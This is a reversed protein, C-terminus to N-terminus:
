EQALFPFYDNFYGTNQGGWPDLPTSFAYSKGVATVVPMENVTFYLVDTKNTTNVHNDQFKYNVTQFGLIPAAAQGFLM